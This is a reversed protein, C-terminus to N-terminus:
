WWRIIETVSNCIPLYFLM